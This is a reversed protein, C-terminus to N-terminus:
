LYGDKQTPAIFEVYGAVSLYISEQDFTNATKSLLIRLDNVKSEPIALIYRRSEDKIPPTGPAGEYEGPLLTDGRYFTEPGSHGAPFMKRITDAFLIWSISQHPRRDSNRVIPIFFECQVIREKM